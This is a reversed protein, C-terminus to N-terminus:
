APFGPPVDYYASVYRMRYIGQQMSAKPVAPSVPNFGTFLSRMLQTKEPPWLAGNQQDSPVDTKWKYDFNDDFWTAVGAATLPYPKDITTILTSPNKRATLTSMFLAKEVMSDSSAPNILTFRYALAMSDAIGFPRTGKGFLAPGGTKPNPNVSISPYDLMRALNNYMADGPTLFTFDTRQQVVNANDFYYPNASPVANKGWLRDGYVRQANLEDLETFNGPQRTDTTSQELLNDLTVSAPYVGAFSLDPNSGGRVQVPAHENDANAATNLNLKASNDVVRVAAYYTIGAIPTIPLKVLMADAVGDADTDAAIFPKEGGRFAVTSPNGNALPFFNMPTGDLNFAQLAPYLVNDVKTFTPVMSPKPYPLSFYNLNTTSDSETPDNFRYPLGAQTGTQVPPYSVARFSIQAPGTPALAAGPATIYDPQGSVPNRTLQREPLVSSLIANVEDKATADPDFMASDVTNAASADKSLIGLVMRKVGEALIDVQVNKVNQQSSSRDLRSTSMAATGILALLVLLSVVMILVSGPRARRFRHQAADLVRVFTRKRPQM